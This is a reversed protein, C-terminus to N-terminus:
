VSEVLVKTDNEFRLWFDTDGVKKYSVLGHDDVKAAPSDYHIDKAKRLGFALNDKLVISKAFELGGAQCHDVKMVSGDYPYFM